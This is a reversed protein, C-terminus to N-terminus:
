AGRGATSATTLLALAERLKRFSPSVNAEPKMLPAIRGAWEHKIIGTLPFGTRKIESSGGPHVADALMEWTDCVADQVYRDLIERKAKPYAGLLAARDGLYWAEIEEIALRFVVNLTPAGRAM